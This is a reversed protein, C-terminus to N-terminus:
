KERMTQEKGGGWLTKPKGGGVMTKSPKEIKGVRQRRRPAVELGVLFRKKEKM